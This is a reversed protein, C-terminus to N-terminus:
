LMKYEPQLLTLMHQKINKEALKQLKKQKKTNPTIKSTLKKNKEQLVLINKKYNKIQSEYKTIHTHIHTTTKKLKTALPSLIIKHTKTINQLKKTLKELATKQRKHIRQILSHHLSLEKYVGKLDTNRHIQESITMHELQLDKLQTLYILYEHSLHDIYGASLDNYEAIEKKLHKQLKQPDQSLLLYEKKDTNTLSLYSKWSKAIAAKSKKQLTIQDKKIIKSSQINIKKREKVYGIREAIHSKLSINEKSINSEISSIHQM